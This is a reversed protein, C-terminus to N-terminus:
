LKAYGLGIEELWENDECVLDINIGGDPHHSTGVVDLFDLELPYYMEDIPESGNVSISTDTADRYTKTNKFEGYTM